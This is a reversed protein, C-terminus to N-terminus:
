KVNRLEKEAIEQLWHSLSEARNIWQHKEQLLLMLSRGLRETEGSEILQKIKALQTQPSTKSYFYVGETNPFYQQLQYSFESYVIAGVSMADFVRECAGHEANLNVVLRSQAYVDKVKEYDVESLFSVNSKHQYLQEWGNGVIQIKLGSEVLADIIKIREFQKAYQHLLAIVAVMDREEKPWLDHHKLVKQLVSMGDCVASATIEEIAEDLVKKLPLDYNQWFLAPHGVWTASIVVDYARLSHPIFDHTANSAVLDVKSNHNNHILGYSKAFDVHSQSTFIFYKKDVVASLRDFHFVPHDVMWCVVPIDFLSFLSVINGQENAIKFELGMGNFTLIGVYGKDFVMQKFEIFDVAGSAEFLDIDMKEKLYVHLSEAFFTLVKNKSQGSILLWKM